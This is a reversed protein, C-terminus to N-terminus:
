VNVLLMCDLQFKFFLQGTPVLRELSDMLVYASSPSIYATRTAFEVMKAHIQIVHVFRYPATQEGTVLAHVFTLTSMDDAIDVTNAPTQRASLQLFLITLSACILRIFVIAKLFLLEWYMFINHFIM